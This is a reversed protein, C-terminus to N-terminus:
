DFIVGGKSYAITHLAELQDFAYAHDAEASFAGRYKGESIRMEEMKAYAMTAERYNGHQAFLRAAIAYLAVSETYEAPVGNLYYYNYLKGREQMERSCFDIIGRIDRGAMFANGATYLQEVMNFKEPYVYEEEQFDYWSPFFTGLEVPSDRLLLLTSETLEQFEPRNYAILRLSMTDIYFLSLKDARSNSSADYFDCFHRDQINFRILSDVIDNAKETFRPQDFLSDGQYLVRIMRLDDVLATEKDKMRLGNIRWAMYGKATTFYKDTRSYTYQYLAGNGSELAYEMLQGMSELLRYDSGHKVPLEAQVLGHNDMMRRAMFTGAEKEMKNTAKRTFLKPDTGQNWIKANYYSYFSVAVVAFVLLMLLSRLISRKKM